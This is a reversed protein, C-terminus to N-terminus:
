SLVPCVSEPPLASSPPFSQQHPKGRWPARAHWRNAATDGSRADAGLADRVPTDPLAIPCPALRAVDGSGSTSRCLLRPSALSRFDLCVFVPSPHFATPYGPSSLVPSVCVAADPSDVSAVAAHTCGLFGRCSAGVRCTSWALGLSAPRIGGRQPGGDSFLSRVRVGLPESRLSAGGVRSLLAMCYQTVASPRFPHEFAIDLRAIVPDAM